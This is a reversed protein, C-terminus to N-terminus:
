ISQRPKTTNLGIRELASGIREGTVEIRELIEIIRDLKAANEVDLQRAAADKSDM